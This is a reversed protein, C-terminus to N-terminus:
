LFVDCIELIAEIVIGWCKIHGRPLSPCVTQLSDAFIFYPSILEWCVVDGRSANGPPTEKTGRM